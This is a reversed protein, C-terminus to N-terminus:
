KADGETNFSLDIELNIIGEECVHATEERDESQDLETDHERAYAIIADYGQDITQQPVDLTSTYSKIVEVDYTFGILPM